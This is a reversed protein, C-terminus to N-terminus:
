RQLAWRFMEQAERLLEEEELVFFDDVYRGCALCFAHRVSEVVARGVRDWQWVSGRAGFPCTRQEVYWPDASEEDCILMGLLAREGAPLPLTRYAGRVDEKFLRFV